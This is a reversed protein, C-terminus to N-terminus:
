HFRWYLFGLFISRSFWCFNFFLKRNPFGCNLISCCYFTLPLLMWYHNLLWLFLFLLKFKHVLSLVKDILEVIFFCLLVTEGIFDCFAIRNDGAYFELVFGGWYGGGRVDGAVGFVVLVM